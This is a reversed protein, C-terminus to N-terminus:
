KCGGTHGNCQDRNGTKGNSAPAIREELKVVRFRPKKDKREKQPETTKQTRQPERLM